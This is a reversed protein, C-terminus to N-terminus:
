RESEVIFEHKCRYCKEQTVFFREEATIDREMEQNCKPCKYSFVLHKEHYEDAKKAIVNEM